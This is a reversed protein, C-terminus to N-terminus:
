TAESEAAVVEKQVAEYTTGAAGGIDENTPNDPLKIRPVMEITLKKAIQCLQDLTDAM